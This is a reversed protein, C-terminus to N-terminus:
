PIEKRKLFSLFNVIELSLSKTLFNIMFLLTVSFSLNRNRSFDRVDFVFKKKTFSHSIEIQLSTLIDNVKKRRSKVAQNVTLYVFFLGFFCNFYSIILTNFGYSLSM